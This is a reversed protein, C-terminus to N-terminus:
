RSEAFGRGTLREMIREAKWMNDGNVMSEDICLNGIVHAAEHIFDDLIKIEEGTLVRSPYVDGVGTM